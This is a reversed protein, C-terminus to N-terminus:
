TVFYNVHQSGEARVCNWAATQETELLSDDIRSCICPAQIVELLPVLWSM